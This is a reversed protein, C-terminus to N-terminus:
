YDEKIELEYGEEIVLEMFCEACLGANGEKVLKVAEEKSNAIVYLKTTDWNCGGCKVEEDSIYDLWFLCFSSLCFPSSLIM